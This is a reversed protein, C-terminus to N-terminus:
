VEDLHIIRSGIDRAEEENHTVYVLTFGFKEQLKVIEKRLRKNLAQDLSSLPEDMLLVKPLLILARALAVRQQEGGSLQEIRKKEYGALGVLSLMRTVQELREKQPIKKIKLGFAINECVNMHPWLALDQFVMAVGRKHPPILITGDKSVLQTDIIVEGKVPAIFGAILRLLTTKGSGSAGLIVLREGKQIRLDMEKLITRKEYVVTVKKLEVM